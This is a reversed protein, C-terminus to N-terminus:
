RVEPHRQAQAEDLIELWHRVPTASAQELHLLCGINSTAIVAPTGANLHGLKRDRLEASLAPQLISYTGASGCCLHSEAPTQVTCGMGGLLAEMRGTGKLGHQLSCPAQVAVTVGPAGAPMVPLEGIFDTADRVRAALTQAREAYQPDDRLLHGYDKLMTSCGSSACFVGAAGADLAPWWAEINRRACARAEDHAGLHYPLAGCCGAGAVRQLSQGARDLVRAAAANISPRAAEQVCGDLALWRTAHRAAPWAGGARALPIRRRLAAPLLPRVLRGLTLLTPFLPSPILRRLLWRLARGQAPRPVAADLLPRAYDLLKGYQVGSPCTTECARCGLCRDLHSVTEASVPMGELLSKIQYIRGRPGDREDGLLQYTPCTANCFGCHVCARLIAEAEAGDQTALIEPRLVARM